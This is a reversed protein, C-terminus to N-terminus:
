AGGGKGFVLSGRCRKKRYIIKFIGEPDDLGCRMIKPKEEGVNKGEVGKEREWSGRGKIVINGVKNLRKESPAKFGGEEWWDGGLYGGNRGRGANATRNEEALWSPFGKRRGIRCKKRLGRWGKKGRKARGHM